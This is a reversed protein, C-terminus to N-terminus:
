DLGMDRHFFKISQEKTSGGATVIKNNAWGENGPDGSVKITTQTTTNTTAASTVSNVTWTSSAITDTGLFRSWDVTYTLVEDKDKWFSPYGKHDKFDYGGVPRGNQKVYITRFAM